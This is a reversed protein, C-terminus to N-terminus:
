YQQAVKIEAYQIDQMGPTSTTKTTRMSYSGDPNRVKKEERQFIGM